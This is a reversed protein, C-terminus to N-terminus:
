QEGDGDTLVSSCTMVCHCEDAQTPKALKM